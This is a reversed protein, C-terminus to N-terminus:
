KNNNNILSASESEIILNVVSNFLFLFSVKWFQYIGEM